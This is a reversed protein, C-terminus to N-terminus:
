VRGFWSLQKLYESGKWTIKWFNGKERRRERALGKEQLEALAKLVEAEDINIERAIQSSRRLLNEDWLAELVKQSQKRLKYKRILRLRWIFAAFTLIATAVIAGAAGTVIQSTLEM